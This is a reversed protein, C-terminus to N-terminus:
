TIKCIGYIVYCFLCVNNNNVPDAEQEKAPGDQAPDDRQEELVTGHAAAACFSVSRM